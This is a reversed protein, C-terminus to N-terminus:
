YRSYHQRPRREPYRNRANFDRPTFEMSYPAVEKNYRNELREDVSPIKYNYELPFEGGFAKNLEEHVVNLPEDVFVVSGNALTIKTKYENSKLDTDMYITIVQNANFVTPKGRHTLKVLM